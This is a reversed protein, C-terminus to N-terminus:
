GAMVIAATVRHDADIARQAAVWADVACARITDATSAVAACDAVLRARAAAERAEQAAELGICRLTAWQTAVSAINSALRAAQEAGAATLPVFNTSPQPRGPSSPLKPTTSSPSFVTAYM